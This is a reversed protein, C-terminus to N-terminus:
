GPWQEPKHLCEFQDFVYCRRIELRGQDKEVTEIWEDPTESPPHARFSTWFDQMSEASKPQSAKVTAGSLRMKVARRRRENLAEIPLKRGDM